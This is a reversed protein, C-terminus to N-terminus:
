SCNGTGLEDIGGKMGFLLGMTSVGIAKGVSGLMVGSWGIDSAAGMGESVVGDGLENTGCGAGLAGAGTEAGEAARGMESEDGDTVGVAAAWSGGRVARGSTGEEM